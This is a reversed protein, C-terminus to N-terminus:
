TRASQALPPSRYGRPEPNRSGPVFLDRPASHATLAEPFATLAEPFFSASSNWVGGRVGRHSIDAGATLATTTFFAVATRRPVWPLAVM